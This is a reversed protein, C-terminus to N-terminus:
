VTLEITNNKFGLVVSEYYGDGTIRPGNICKYGDADLRKTLVDVAEKSGLSMAFHALGTRNTEKELDVTDPKTMIELRAGDEFSLFYSKFGTKQNHYLQNVSAQFYSQFFEKAGELDNVYIALHEIKM